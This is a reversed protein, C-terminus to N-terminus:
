LGLPYPSFIVRGAKYILLRHGLPTSLKGLSVCSTLVPGPNSCLPDSGSGVRKVGEAAEGPSHNKLTHESNREPITKWFCPKLKKKLFFFLYLSLELLNQFAFQVLLQTYSPQHPLGDIPICGVSHFRVSSVM